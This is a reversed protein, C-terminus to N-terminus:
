YFLGEEEDGLEEHDTGEASFYGIIEEESLEAFLDELKKGEILDHSAIVLNKVTDAPDLLLVKDLYEEIEKKELKALSPKLETHNINRTMLDNFFWIGFITIAAAAAAMYILRGFGSRGKKKSGQDLLIDESLGVFFSNDPIEIQKPKLHDLINKQEEM